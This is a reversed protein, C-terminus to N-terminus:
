NGSDTGKHSAAHIIIQWSLVSPQQMMVSRNNDATFQKIMDLNLKVRSISKITTILDHSGELMLLYFISSTAQHCNVAHSLILMKIDIAQKKELDWVHSYDQNGGHLYTSWYLEQTWNGLNSSESTVGAM